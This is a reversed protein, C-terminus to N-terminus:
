LGVDRKSSRCARSLPKLEPGQDTMTRAVAHVLLELFAEAGVRVVDEVGIRDRDPERVLFGHIRLQRRDDLHDALLEVLHFRADRDSRRM